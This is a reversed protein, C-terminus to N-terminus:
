GGVEIGLLRLAVTAGLSEIWGAVRDFGLTAGLILFLVLAQVYRPPFYAAIVEKVDM